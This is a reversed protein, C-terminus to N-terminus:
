GQSEIEDVACEYGAAFAEALSTINRAKVTLLYGLGATSLSMVGQGDEFIFGLRRCEALGGLSKSLAEIQRVSDIDFTNDSMPRNAALIRYGQLEVSDNGNSAFM